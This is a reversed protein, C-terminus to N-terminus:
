FWASSILFKDQRKQKICEQDNYVYSMTYLITVTSFCPTLHFLKKKTRLLLM